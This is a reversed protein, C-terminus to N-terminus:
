DIHQVKSHEGIIEQVKELVIKAEEYNLEEDSFKNIIFVVLEGVKKGNFITGNDMEIDAYWM